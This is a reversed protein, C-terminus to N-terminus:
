PAAAPPPAPLRFRLCYYFRSVRTVEVDVAARPLLEVPAHPNPDYWTISWFMLRHYVSHRRAPDLEEDVVVIPTGPRAVRAM